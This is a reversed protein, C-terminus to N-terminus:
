TRPPRPDGQPGGVRAIPRDLDAAVKVEELRVPRQLEIPRLGEPHVEVNRGPGGNAELRAVGLLHRQRRVAAGALHQPHVVQRRSSPPSRLVCRREFRRPWPKRPTLGGRQPRARRDARTAAPLRPVSARWHRAVISPDGAHRHRPPIVGGEVARRGAVGNPQAVGIQEGLDLVVERHRAVLAQVAAALRQAVPHPERGPVGAGRAREVHQDAVHHHQIRHQADDLAVDPDLVARMTAMPLAPLGATMSPTSGRSTHPAEVVTRSPSPSMAVGPPM